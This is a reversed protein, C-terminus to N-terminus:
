DHIGDEEETFLDQQRFQSVATYIETLIAAMKKLNRDQDYLRKKLEDFQQKEAVILDHYRQFISDNDPFLRIQREATITTKRKTHMM